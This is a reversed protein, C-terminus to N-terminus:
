TIICKKREPTSESARIAARIAVDFCRKLGEQTLASCDVYEDFHLEKALALAEETTVVRQNKEALREIIHVDHRLDCKTGVLVRRAKSCHLELEPVWNRKVNELSEQSLVSFCVLCVDVDLYSLARVGAYELSGAVDALFLSIPLGDVM